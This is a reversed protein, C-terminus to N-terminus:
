DVIVISGSTGRRSSEVLMREAEELGRVVWSSSTELMAASCLHSSNMM